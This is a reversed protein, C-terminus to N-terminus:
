RASRNSCRRTQAAAQTLLAALRDADDPTLGAAVFRELNERERVVLLVRNADSFDVEVVVRVSETNRMDCKIRGLANLGCGAFGEHVARM